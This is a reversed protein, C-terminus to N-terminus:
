QVGGPETRMSLASITWHLVQRPQQWIQRPTFHMITWGQATLENHWERDAEFADRSSHYEWGDVQCIVRQAEFTVDPVVTKQGLPMRRNGVWGTFGHDRYLQQLDMEPISWPNGAAVLVCHARETVRKRVRLLDNATAISGSTIAGLRLAECLPTWKGALALDLVTLDPSTVTGDPGAIRLEAPVPLKHFTLGPPVTGPPRGVLELRDLKHGSLFTVLAAADGMLTATPQWRMAALARIRPEPALDPTTVVGPLLKVLSGHQLARAIQHRLPRHHATKIVGNGNRLAIELETM